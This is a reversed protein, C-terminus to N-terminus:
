LSQNYHEISCLLFFVSSSGPVFRCYKVETPTKDTHLITGLIEWLLLPSNLVTPRLYLDSILVRYDTSLSSVLDLDQQVTGDQNICTNLKVM